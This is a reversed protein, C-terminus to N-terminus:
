PLVFLVVPLTWPDAGLTLETTGVRRWGRHEYFEIADRNHAAVDLVLRLDREAALEQACALLGGGVGRGRTHPAVFFRSVVAM